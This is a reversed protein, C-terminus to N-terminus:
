GVRIPRAGYDFQDLTVTTGGTATEMPRLVAGAALTIYIPGSTFTVRDSSAINDTGYVAPQLRTIAGNVALSAGVDLVANSASSALRGAFTLEYEGALPIVIQTTGAFVYGPTSSAYSGSDYVHLPGGGIFEWKTTGTAAARYRLHWAVGSAAMAANQFYVEQGDVPAGPLASVLAPARSPSADIYGSLRRELDELAAADIPTEKSPPNDKWDKVLFPM